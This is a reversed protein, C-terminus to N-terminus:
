MVLRGLAPPLSVSVSLQRLGSPLLRWNVKQGPWGDAHPSFTEVVNTPIPDGLNVIISAQNDSIWGTRDVSRIM